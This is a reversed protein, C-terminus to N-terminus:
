WSLLKLILFLSKTLTKKASRGDIYTAAEKITYIKCVQFMNIESSDESKIDLGVGVARSSIASTLLGVDLGNTRLITLVGM